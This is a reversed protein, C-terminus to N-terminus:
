RIIKYYKPLVIQSIDNLSCNTFGTATSTNRIKELSFNILTDNKDLLSLITNKNTLFASKIQVKTRQMKKFSLVGKTLKRNYDIEDLNIKKVGNNDNFFTLSYKNHSNYIYAGVVIDDTLKITKVGLSKPGTNAFDITSHKFIFGSQTIIVLTDEDSILQAGVLYDGERLKMIKLAKSIRTAELEKIVTQKYFGESSITVVKYNDKNDFDNIVICQIIKEASPLQAIKNIHEGIDKAKHRSIQHIPIIVYNGQDTILLLKNLNSTIFNAIFIDQPKHAFNDPSVKLAVSKELCKLYGDRSVWIGVKEEIITETSEIEIEEMKNEIQSLRKSDAYKNKIEELQEIIVNNLENPYNLITKLRNIKNILEGKEQEIKVIDTSTLRYLRLQVIATAQVTSFKYKLILNDIAEQRNNSSRITKIIKDLISVAKILGDIIELRKNFKNLLFKSRRTVIEIQHKIFASFLDKLNSLKPQQNIITVININYSVQLNTNKLLYKRVLEHNADKELEVVIRLGNRDTEDRVEKILLSQENYRADDIKKVLDKKIVDYPIEDIIMNNKEFYFNSRIIIKGKGKTYAEKIGKVGQITGKTPFDPGKVFNLLDKIKCEPNMIQYILGDIIELINHPPINTAYGAAIGTAGNLLLNPVRGPLIAPEIESDDFNAIFDVTEKDLDMLLFSSMETLRAETYRMAAAPDGDISGNNGHMDILPYRLKWKQSMRVLADNVSTDGHPHYKGIVEGVIRATKKYATNHFLRLENMAYLIRRQVPKLGDRADPLAREQIIYKAYRGFRESM